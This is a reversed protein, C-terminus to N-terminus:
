KFHLDKFTFHEEVIGTTKVRSRLIDQETPLYSPDCLRDLANLYSFSSYFFFSGSILCHYVRFFEVMRSQHVNENFLWNRNEAITLVDSVTSFPPLSPSSRKKICTYEM